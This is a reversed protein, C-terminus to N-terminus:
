VSDPSWQTKIHQTAMNYSLFLHLKAYSHGTERVYNVMYGEDGNYYYYSPGGVEIWTTTTTNDAAVIRTAYYASPNVANTAANRLMTCYQYSSTFDEKARAAPTVYTSYYAYTIDIYTDQINGVAHAPKTPIYSLVPVILMFILALSLLGQVIGLSKRPESELVAYNM